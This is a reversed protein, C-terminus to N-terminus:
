EARKKPIKTAILGGVFAGLPGFVVAGNVAGGFAAVGTFSGFFLGACLGIVVGIVILKMM